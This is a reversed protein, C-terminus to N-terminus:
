CSGRPQRCKGINYQDDADKENLHTLLEIETKAQMLFPKKSKIIKIAVEVNQELDDARVVQGFSGKGIRDKIRYRGNYFLEGPNIIYDYNDDDWGSNNTGSGQQPKSSSSPQQQSSSTTPTSLKEDSSRKAAATAEAKEQKAKAAKRAEREEYYVDNIHKYTDILSLSLKILPRDAPLRGM